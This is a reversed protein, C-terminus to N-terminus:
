DPKPRMGLRKFHAIRFYYWIWFMLNPLTVAFVLLWGGTVAYCSMAFIWVVAGFLAAADGWGKQRTLILTVALIVAALACAGWIAPLAPTLSAMAQYLSSAEVGRTKGFAVFGVGYAATALFFPYILLNIPTENDLYFLRRVITGMNTTYWALREIANSPRSPISGQLSTKCVELSVM